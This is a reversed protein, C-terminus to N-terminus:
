TQSRRRTTTQKAVSRTEGRRPSKIGPSVRSKSTRVPASKRTGGAPARGTRSKGWAASAEALAEFNEGLRPEGSDARTGLVFDKMREWVLHVAIWDFLLDENILGHKWMTGLGEYYTAIKTAKTFAESGPPHDHVFKKYKPEFERSSTFAFAGPTNNLAAEQQARLILLADERTPKAM